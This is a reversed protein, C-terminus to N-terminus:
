LEHSQAISLIAKAIKEAADTHVFARTADSMQKIRHPDKAIVDITARLLGPKLNAEEIVTAAGTRAYSYANERQHDGRAIPLPILISPKGFYAIEFISSGARSVILTATSAALRLTRADLYGYPHYRSALPNGTLSGEARKKMWALNATGTQHIVQYEDLLSPVIDMIIENIRESGQSGGIVLITPLNRELKLAEYPDETPQVLIEARLPIGTLAARDRHPVHELTEPYSVAIREAYKAVWANVRGFTIDSEHIVVPIRLVRAAFIAPFSAYGGKGFVVDPYIRFLIGIARICALATRFKDFFNKTSTYTRMKGSAIKVFRLHARLLLDPNYPSDSIYYMEPPVLHEQTAIHEVANAIAIIPYFHGGTGGGTFVIKM